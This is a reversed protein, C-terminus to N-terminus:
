EELKIEKPFTVQIDENIKVFDFNQTKTLSDFSKKDLQLCLDHEKAWKLAETESYDYSKIERIGIGGLLKKNKTKNFEEKASIIIEEKLEKEQQDCYDTNRQEKLKLIKEEAEKKIQAILLRTQENHNIIDRLSILNEKLIM